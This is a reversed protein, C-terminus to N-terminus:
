TWEGEEGGDGEYGEDGESEEFEEKASAKPKPVSMPQLKKHWVHWRAVERKEDRTRGPIRDRHAWSSTALTRLYFTYRGPASHKEHQTTALM